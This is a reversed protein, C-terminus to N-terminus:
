RGVLTVAPSTQSAPQRPVIQNITQGSHLHHRIGMCFFSGITREFTLDIILVVKKRAGEINPNNLIMINNNM